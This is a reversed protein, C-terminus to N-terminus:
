SEDSLMQAYGIRADPWQHKFGSELLRECSLRKSQMGAPPLGVPVPGVGLLHAIHNYLTHMPLAHQDTVIYTSLPQKLGLVHVVARAADDIHIRNTWYPPDIPATAAGALIRQVIQNRGPGYIGSLRLVISHPHHTLLFQEAELLVQGNFNAPLTPTNENVIAGLSEGYVATSSVFVWRRKVTKNLLPDAENGLIQSLNQLGTLYTARYQEPNRQDPTVCYVVQDISDALDQLVRLSTPAKLDAALWSFLHSFPQSTPPHRKLGIVQVKDHVLRQAINLGLDGCGAILTTM